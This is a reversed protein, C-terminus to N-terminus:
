VLLRPRCDLVCPTNRVTWLYCNESVAHQPLRQNFRVTSSEVSITIAAVSLAM